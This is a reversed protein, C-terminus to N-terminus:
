TPKPNPNPHRHLLSMVVPAPKGTICYVVTWKCHKHQRKAYYLIVSIVANGATPDDHQATILQGDPALRRRRRVVATRNQDDSTQPEVCSRDCLGPQDADEGEGSQNDDCLMADCVVFLEDRGVFKPVHFRFGWTFRDVNYLMLGLNQTTPCRGLM